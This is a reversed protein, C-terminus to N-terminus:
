NDELVEILPKRPTKEDSQLIEIKPKFNEQSKLFEVDNGEDIEDLDVEELDPLDELNLVEVNKSLDKNDDPDVEEDSTFDKLDESHHLDDQSYDMEVGNIKEDFMAVPTVTNEDLIIGEKERREKAKKRINKLYDVSAQIKAREKNNWREHEAREEERGGRKWAEACARDRPFVPRDDLYTLQKLRVIMNKRYFRIKKVVPNGMLNLVRLSEMEELIEIVKPDEIKNHSLDLVSISSSYRLNSLSEYTSINNQALQLTELRSLSETIVDNV